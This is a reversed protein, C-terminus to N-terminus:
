LCDPFLELPLFVAVANIKLPWPDGSGPPAKGGFLPSPTVSALKKWASRSGHSEVVRRSAGFYQRPVCFQEQLDCVPQFCHFEIFIM